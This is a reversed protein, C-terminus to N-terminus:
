GGFGKGTKCDLLATPLMRLAIYCDGIKHNSTIGPKLLYGRDANPKFRSAWFSQSSFTYVIVRSARCLNLVDATPLHVAIGELIEWPLMTFCDRGKLASASPGIEYGTPPSRPFEKLLQQIEPVDHPNEKAYLCVISDEEREVLQDEWPHHNQKHLHVLGGYDHGWSVGFGRLPFPLSKFIEMLRALPVSEPYYVELLLSWCAEHFVFGHKGNVPSQRMVAIEDSAPFAYGM